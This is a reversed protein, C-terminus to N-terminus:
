IKSRSTLNNRWTRHHTAGQEAPGYLGFRAVEGWMVVLALMLPTQAAPLHHAVATSKITKGQIQAKTMHDRGAWTTMTTLHKHTMFVALVVLAKVM